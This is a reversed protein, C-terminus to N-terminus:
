SLLIWMVNVICKSSTGRFGRLSQLEEFKGDRNGECICAKDLCLLLSRVAEVTSLVSPTHTVVSSVGPIELGYVFAKWSMDASIRISYRIDPTARSADVKTLVLREEESTV